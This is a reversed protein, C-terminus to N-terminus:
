FRRPSTSACKGLTQRRWLQNRPAACATCARWCTPARLFFPSPCKGALACPYYTKPTTPMGHRRYPERPPPPVCVYWWFMVSDCGEAKRLEELDDHMNKFAEPWKPFGRVKERNLRTLEAEKWGFKHEMGVDCKNTRMPQEALTYQRVLDHGVTHKKATDTILMVGTPRYTHKVINGIAVNSLSNKVDAAVCLMKTGVAPRPLDAVGPKKTKKKKKAAPPSVMPTEAAAAGAAGDEDEDEDESDDSSDSVLDPMMTQQLDKYIESGGPLRRTYSTRACATPETTASPM